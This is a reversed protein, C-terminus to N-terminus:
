GSNMLEQSNARSEPEGSKQRPKLELFFPPSTLRFVHSM